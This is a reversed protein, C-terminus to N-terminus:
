NYYHWRHHHRDWRRHHYRHHNYYYYRVPQVLAPRATHVGSEAITAASAPGSLGAALMLGAPILAGLLLKRM